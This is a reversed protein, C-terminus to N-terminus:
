LKHNISKLGQKTICYYLNVSIYLITIYFFTGTVFWESSLDPEANRRIDTLAMFTLISLPILIITLALRLIKIAKQM